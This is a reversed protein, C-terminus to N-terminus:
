HMYLKYIRAWDIEEAHIARALQNPDTAFAYTRGKVDTIRVGRWREIFAPFLTPEELAKQAQEYHEGALHAPDFGPVKIVDFTLSDGAIVPVRRVRTDNFTWLKGSRTAGAQRKAYASLRERGIRMRRAVAGLSEGARMAAVAEELVPDPKARAPKAHVMSAYATGAAPHGRAQSRTLGRREASAIRRAYEAKYNRQRAM